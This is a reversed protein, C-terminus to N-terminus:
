RVRVEPKCMNWLSLFEGGVIENRGQSPHFKNVVVSLWLILSVLPTNTGSVICSVRTKCM